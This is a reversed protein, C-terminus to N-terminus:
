YVPDDSAIVGGESFKKTVGFFAVTNEGMAMLAPDMKQGCGTVSASTIKATRKAAPLGM